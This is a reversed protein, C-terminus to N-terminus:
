PREAHLVVLPQSQQRVYGTQDVLFQEQLFSYKAGSFRTRRAWRGARNRRDSASLDVKAPIPLRSPRLASASTAWTALGSVM